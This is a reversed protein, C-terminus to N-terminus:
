QPAQLFFKESQVPLRMFCLLSGNRIQTIAMYRIGSSGLPDDLTWSALSSPIM